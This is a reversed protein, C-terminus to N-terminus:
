VARFLCLVDILDYSLHNVYSKYNLIRKLLLRGLVLFGAADSELKTNLRTKAENSSGM